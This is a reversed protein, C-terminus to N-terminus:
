KEPPPTGVQLTLYGWEGCYKKADEENLYVCCYADGLEPTGKINFPFGKVTLDDWDSMKGAIYIRQGPETKSKLM